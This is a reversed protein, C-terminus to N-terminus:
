LAAPTVGGADLRYFRQQHLLHQSQYVGIPLPVMVVASVLVTEPQAADAAVSVDRAGDTVPWWDSWSGESLWRAWVATREDIVVEAVVGGPLSAIRSAMLSGPQRDLM